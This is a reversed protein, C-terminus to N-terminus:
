KVNIPEWKAWLPVVFGVATTYEMTFVKNPSSIGGYFHNARDWWCEIKYNTPLAFKPEDIPELEANITSPTFTINPMGAPIYRKAMYGDKGEWKELALFFFASNPGFNEYDPDDYFTIGSCEWARPSGSLKKVYYKNDHTQGDKFTADKPYDSLYKVHITIKERGNLAARILSYKPNDATVKNTFEKDRYFKNDKKNFYITDLTQVKEGNDTERLYLFSVTPVNKDHPVVTPCSPSLPGTTGPTTGPNTGPSPSQKECKCKGFESLPIFKIGLAYRCSVLSLSTLALLVFLVGMKIKNKKMNLGRIKLRVCYNDAVNNNFNDFKYSCIIIM